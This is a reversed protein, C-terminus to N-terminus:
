KKGSVHQGYASLAQRRGASQGLSGKVEGLKDEIAHGLRNFDDILAILRSKVTQGETAPLEEIQSCIELVQPELPTLDILEGAQVLDHAKAILGGLAQLDNNLSEAKSM